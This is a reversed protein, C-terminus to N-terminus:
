EGDMKKAFSLKLLGHAEVAVFQAESDRLRFKKNLAKRFLVFQM